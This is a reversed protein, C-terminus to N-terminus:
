LHDKLSPGISKHETELVISSFPIKKFHDVEDSNAIAKATKINFIRKQATNRVIKYKKGSRRRTRKPSKERKRGM